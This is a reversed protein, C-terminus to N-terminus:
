TPPCSTGSVVTGHLGTHACRLMTCAYCPAASRLVSRWLAARQSATCCAAAAGCHQDAYAKCMSTIQERMTQYESFQRTITSITLQVMGFISAYILAGLVQALWLGM